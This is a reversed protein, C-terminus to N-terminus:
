RFFQILIRCFRFIPESNSGEWIRNRIMQLKVLYFEIKVESM